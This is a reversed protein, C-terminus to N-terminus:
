KKYIKENSNIILNNYDQFSGRIMIPRIDDKNEFICLNIFERNSLINLIKISEVVFTLQKNDFDDYGAAIINNYEVQAHIGYPRNQYADIQCNVWVHFGNQYYQGNETKIHKQLKQLKPLNVIENYKQFSLLQDYHIFRWYPKGDVLCPVIQKYGIGTGTSKVDNIIKKLCM